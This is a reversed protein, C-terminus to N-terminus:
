SELPHGEVDQVAREASRVLRAHETQMTLIRKTRMRGSPLPEELMEISVLQPRRASSLSSRILQLTELAERVGLQMFDAATRDTVHKGALAGRSVISLLSRTEEDAELFYQEMAADDWAEHTGSGGETDLKHVFLAVDHVFEEPVPVMVFTNSPMLVEEPAIGL